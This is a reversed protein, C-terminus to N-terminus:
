ATRNAGVPLALLEKVLSSLRGLDPTLDNALAAAQEGQLGTGALYVKNTLCQLPNNIQHALENAMAAAAGLRAQELLQAHQRQQRVAMAAFDALTEMLRCDDADFAATRGHAMIFITGRIGDIEWPLLIGDTVLPAKVQLIDFFEQHVRFLQPTGRELCIGCASPYRPLVAHLFGSYEGATGVWEYYADDTPNEKVLSIGASDAGCLEVAADALAQLIKSPEEVTASALRQIGIM